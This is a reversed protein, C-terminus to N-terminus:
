SNLAEELERVVIKKMGMMAEMAKKAKEKEPHNIMQILKEPIIQWSVGYKDKLWGCMSEQGGDDLFKNWYYDVEEQDKCDVYFSISDNFPINDPKGILTSFQQGCIEFSVVFDNEQLIKSGPFMSVYYNAAEKGQSEFWLFPTIKQVTVM